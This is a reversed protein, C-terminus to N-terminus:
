TEREPTPTRTNVHQFFKDDRIRAEAKARDNANNVSYNMAGICREREEARICEDHVASAAGSEHIAIHTMATEPHLGCPKAVRELWELWSQLEVRLAAVQAELPEKAEREVQDLLSVIFSEYEDMQAGTPVTHMSSIAKILCEQAKQKNAESM